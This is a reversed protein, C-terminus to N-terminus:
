KLTILSEAFEHVIHFPLSDGSHGMAEEIEKENLLKGKAIVNM